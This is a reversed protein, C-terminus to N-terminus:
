TRGQEDKLEKLKITVERVVPILEVYFHDLFYGVKRNAFYCDNNKIYPVDYNSISFIRKIFLNHLGRTM